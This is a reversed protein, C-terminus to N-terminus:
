PAAGDGRHPGPLTFWITAGRDVAAEAWVIGGHRHVVRQVTALGIGTGEFDEFSHLRQFPAFLKDAYQMDFGVGNDRVFYATEADREARGFEVHAAASRRTFKWANQLLNSLAVHLLRRDGQAVMGPAIDVTVAREPDRERLESVIEAAMESLDVPALAVAGRAVRALGLLDDILAGMRQSAARVRELHRRGAADVVDGYDELLAQSFGDISRLPARLDHSVSYSFAELERNVVQLDTTREAVERELQGHMREVTDAMHNFAAGVEGIEDHRELAVRRSYDGAAITGAADALRTLPRTLSRSIAWGWAGGILVLVATILILDVALAHADRLVDAQPLEVLVTWPTGAIREAGGMVAGVGPRVYHRARRAGPTMPVPPPTVVHVLDTWVDGTDNGAYLRASKGILAGIERAAQETGTSRRRM